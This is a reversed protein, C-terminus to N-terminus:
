LHRDVGATAVLALGVKSIERADRFGIRPDLGVADDVLGVRQDPCGPGAAVVVDVVPQLRDLVMEVDDL